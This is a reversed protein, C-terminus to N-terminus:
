RIQARLTYGEEIREGGLAVAETRSRREELETAPSLANLDAQM